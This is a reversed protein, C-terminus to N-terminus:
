VDFAMVRDMWARTRDRGDPLTAFGAKETRFVVPAATIDAATIQGDGNMDGPLYVRFNDFERENM